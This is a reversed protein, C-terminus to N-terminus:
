AFNIPIIHTLERLSKGSYFKDDMVDSVDTYHKIDEGHWAQFIPVGNKVTSTVGSLKNNYTFYVDNCCDAIIEMVENETIKM